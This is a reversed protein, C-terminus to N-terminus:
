QCNVPHASSVEKLQKTKPPGIYPVNNEDKTWARVINVVHQGTSTTVFDMAELATVEGFRLGTPVLFTFFSRYPEALEGELLGWENATLFTSIEETANSKPFAM